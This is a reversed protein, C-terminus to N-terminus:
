EKFIVFVVELSSIRRQMPSRERVGGSKWIFRPSFLLLSSIFLHVIRILVISLCFSSVGLLLVFELVFLSIIM